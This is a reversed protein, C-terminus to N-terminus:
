LVRCDSEATHTQNSPQPYQRKDRGRKLEAWNENEGVRKLSTLMCLQDLDPEYGLGLAENEEDHRHNPLIFTKPQMPEVHDHDTPEKSRGSQGTLVWPKLACRGAKLIKEVGKILESLTQLDNHSTLIDDLYCDESVIQCEVVMSSFQHLNATERLAVQALCGAPKDGINVRVVAFVKIEEEPNDRWLFCHLHVEENNLWVSNFMKM